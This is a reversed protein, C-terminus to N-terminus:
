LLVLILAYPDSSSNKKLWNLSMVLVDNVLLQELSSQEHGVVICVPTSIHKLNTQYVHKNSKFKWCHIYNNINEYINISVLSVIKLVAVCMCQM